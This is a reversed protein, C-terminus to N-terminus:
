SELKYMYTLDHAIQRETDSRNIESLLIDELKWGHQQM